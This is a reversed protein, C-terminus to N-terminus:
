RSATRVERYGTASAPTGGWVRITAEAPQRTRVEATWTAGDALRVRETTPPRDARIIEVDYSTARGERNVISLEYSATGSWSAYGPTASPAAAVLTVVTRPDAAADASGLTLWAAGALMALSVVASVGLAALRSPAPRM